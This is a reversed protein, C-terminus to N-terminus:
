PLEEATVTLEIHHIHVKGTGSLVLRYGRDSPTFVRSRVVRTKGDGKCYLIEVPRESTDKSQIALTADEEATMLVSIQSVRRSLTTGFTTYATSCLFNQHEANETSYIKGDETFFYCTTDNATMSVLRSQASFPLRAWATNVPDYVYIHDVSPVYLYYLGGHTAALAGSYDSLGLPAGIETAESGNYCYVGRAGAFFLRNDIEALSKGSVTGVSFLDAVRFPNKNNHIIHCFDRKMALVQGDYVTLATFDGTARTNSQVVAAWANAAGTDDATDVNWDTPDNYASAYIHDGAVGFIRSLHVCAHHIPPIKVGGESLPTMVICDEDLELLKNEPFIVAYHLYSGGLPDQPDSYQNFRVVTYEDTSEGSELACMEIHGNKIYHLYVEGDIRTFALLTDGLAHLSLPRGDLRLGTEGPSALTTLEPLGRPDIGLADSLARSEAGGRVDLGEFGEFRFVQKRLASPLHAKPSCKVVTM